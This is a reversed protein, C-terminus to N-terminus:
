TTPFAPDGSHSGAPESGRPGLGAEFVTTTAGGPPPVVINTPASDGVAITLTASSESGDGDRITYTFFDTGSGADRVYSYSGDAFLTLTGFAGVINAGATPDVDVATAGIAVSAVTAGDAGPIDAGSDGSLTGIGTLVNGTEAATQGTAVADTDSLAVPADDTI